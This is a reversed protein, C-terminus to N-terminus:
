LGSEINKWMMIISIILVIIGVVISHINDAIAGCLFLGTSLFGSVAAVDFRSM